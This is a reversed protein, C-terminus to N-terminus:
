YFYEGANVILVQGTMHDSAPAALYVISGDLDNPRVHEGLARAGLMADGRETGAAVDSENLASTILGYAFTNVRIGDGGLEAALSRTMALIAGKASTYHLRNILGTMMTTSGINIIKGYKQKRMQPVAAKVCLFTGRVNVAMLGDWEEVTMETVPIPPINSGIAANNVLIDLSGFREIAKAMMDQVQGEDSVDAKIALTRTQNGAAEIDAAVDSTDKVDALVVNAGEAALAKAFSSGLAAREGYAAGTILATKGDLQGM